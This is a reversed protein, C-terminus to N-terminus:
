PKNSKLIANKENSVEIEWGRELKELKRELVKIKKSLVSEGTGNNGDLEDIGVLRLDEDPILENAENLLEETKNDLEAIEQREVIAEMTTQPAKPEKFVDHYSLPENPEESQAVTQSIEIEVETTENSNSTNENCSTLLLLLTLLITKKM